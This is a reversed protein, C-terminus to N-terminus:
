VTALSRRFYAPLIYVLMPQTPPFLGISFPEASNGRLWELRVKRAKERLNKIFSIFAIRLPIDSCICWMRRGFKKPEYPIDIPQSSVEFESPLPIGEKDRISAMDAEIERVRRSVKENIKRETAPSGGL